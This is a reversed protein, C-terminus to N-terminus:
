ANGSELDRIVLQVSTQATVVDGSLRTLATAYGGLLGAALRVACNYCGNMDAAAGQVIEDSKDRGGKLFALVLRQTRLAETRIAEDTKGESHLKCVACQETM